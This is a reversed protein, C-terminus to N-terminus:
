VGVDHVALVNPHELGGAARAEQEFRKLANQDSVGRPLVKIAVGRDLVRDRALFVAGGGGRGLEREIIFRGAVRDGPALPDNDPDPGSAFPTDAPTAAAAKEARQEELRAM